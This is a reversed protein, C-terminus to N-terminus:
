APRDKGAAYAQAKLATARIFRYFLLASLAMVPYIVWLTKM